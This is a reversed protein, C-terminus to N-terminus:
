VGITVIQQNMGRKGFLVASIASYPSATFSNHNRMRAQNLASDLGLPGLGSNQIDSANFLAGTAKPGM